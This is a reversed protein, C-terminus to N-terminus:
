LIKALREAMMTDATVAWGSTAYFEKLVNNDVNFDAFNKNTSETEIYRKTM